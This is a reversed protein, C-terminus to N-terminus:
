LAAEESGACLDQQVPSPKGPASEGPYGQAGHLVLVSREQPSLPLAPIEGADPGAGESPARGAGRRESYMLLPFSKYGKEGHGRPVGAGCQGTKEVPEKKKGESSSGGREEIVTGAGCEPLPQYSPLEGTCLVATDGACFVRPASRRDKGGEGPM